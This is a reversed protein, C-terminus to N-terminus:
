LKPEHAKYYKIVAKSLTYAPQDHNDPTAGNANALTGQFETPDSTCGLGLTNYGYSWNPVAGLMNLNKTHEMASTITKANIPGSKMSKLIQTGGYADIWTMFSVEIYKDAPNVKAIDADFLKVAPVSADTPFVTYGSVITGKAGLSVLAGDVSPGGQIIYGPGGLRISPKAGLVSSFLADIAPGGVGGIFGDEGAEVAQAAIPAFDATTPSAQLWAHITAGDSKAQIDTGAELVNEGAVGAPLLASLSKVGAKAMFHVLAPYDVFPGPLFCATTRSYEAQPTSPDSGIIPIGQQELLPTTVNDVLSVSPIAAVVGESKANAVCQSAAAASFKTDCTILHIQRGQVGGSANFADVAAVVGDQFETTPVPALGTVDGYTLINIPPGAATASGGAITVPTLSVLLM